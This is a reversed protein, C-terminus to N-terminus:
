LHIRVKGEVSSSISISVASVQSEERGLSRGESEEKGFANNGHSKEDSYDELKIYVYIYVYICIYIRIYM